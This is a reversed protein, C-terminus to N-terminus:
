RRSICSHARLRPVCVQKKARQCRSRPCRSKLDPRTCERSRTCAGRARAAAVTVNHPCKHKVAKSMLLHGADQDRPVDHHSLTTASNGGRQAPARILMIALANFCSMHEFAIAATSEVQLCPIVVFLSSSATASLLDLLCLGSRCSICALHLLRLTLAAAAARGM